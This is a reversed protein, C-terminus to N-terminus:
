GHHIHARSWPGLGVSCASSNPEKTWPGQGYGNHGSFHANLCEIPLRLAIWSCYIVPFM